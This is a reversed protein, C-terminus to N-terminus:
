EWKPIKTARDRAENRENLLGWMERAVLKKLNLVEPWLKRIECLQTIIM